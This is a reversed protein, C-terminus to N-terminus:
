RSRGDGTIVGIRRGDCSFLVLGDRDTRYVPRGEVGALAVTGPDPQGFSNRGVAIVSMEPQVREVFEPLVYRSGHHPVKLVSHKLQYGRELLRAQGEAEIDGTLLFSKLGYRVSLVLSNNNLDSRTGVLLDAGPGLVEVRVRPDLTILDGSYLERVPVNREGFLSVIKKYGPDAREQTQGSLGAPSVLVAGIGFRGLLFGAGAAHDEHPHTLVLADLRNLGLRRLYSAVVEGAGRGERFEDKWGGADVLMVRGNPFRLLTSDGQGVDIIHVELNGGGPGVAAALSWVLCSALLGGAILRLVPVKKKEPKETGAGGLLFALSLYWAAVAATPPPSVYFVSGPIGHIVGVVLMMLDLLAATAYNILLAVKVCALGALSAALGLPLILGVLPVALLNAPISALSFINYHCAVLPLTGIQAGLPVSLCGRIWSRTLGMSQLRRDIAAGAHLIGWTAAFSLQFGPDFLSRPSFALIALAAAALTTPWDRERGLRHGLLCIWAMVAARVVAPGVGTIYAYVALVATIVPFSFRQLRLASMLGLVGAAVLGVHLGSVSLIHVVGAESFVEKTRPSIEGRSGFIMGNVLAAHGQDLTARNVEMLRQKIGLALGAAPNGRGSGTKELSEGDKLSVVAWVGRGSLYEGYDFRGPNGPSDPLYPRGTVRVADGYGLDERRGSMYLLVRGPARAVEEGMCAREVELSYATRGQKFQPDGCIYGELTVTRGYFREGAAGPSLRAALGAAAGLLIFVIVLLPFISRRLAFFVAMGVATLALAALLVARPMLVTMGSLALAIGSAFALTLYVLPRSVM